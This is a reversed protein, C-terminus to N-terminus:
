VNAIKDKSLYVSEGCTFVSCNLRIRARAKEGQTRIRQTSLSKPGTLNGVEALSHLTAESASFNSFM